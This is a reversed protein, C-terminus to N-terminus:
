LKLTSLGPVEWTTENTAENYYYTDGDETTVPMWGPPLRTENAIVAVSARPNAVRSSAAGDHAHKARGVDFPNHQGAEDPPAAPTISSEPPDFGEPPTAPPPRPPLPPTPASPPRPPNPAATPLAMDAGSSSELSTTGAGYIM